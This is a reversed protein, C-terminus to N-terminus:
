KTNLKYGLYIVEKQFFTCKEQNIKLGVKDLRNIIIKLHKEHDEATKSFILIDDIYHIVFHEYQDLIDHLCRCLASCSSQLGFPVVKFQYVVGDIQFGTYKRSKRELPILWFSHQLDIKTFFSMGTIRGLIGDISMPAEFQKETIKNINRADLCLRIEGSRKRVVVIPNIFRTDAKEIIGDELMNNITKNVEERYKYPIPYSKTKFDKEEKVKISHIYNQAIRNEKNVLGKHQQLISVVISKYEEPCNVKIVDEEKCIFNNKMIYENNRAELKVCEVEYPDM